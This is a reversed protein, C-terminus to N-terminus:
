CNRRLHWGIAFLGLCFLGVSAPEPVATTLTSSSGIVIPTDFGALNIGARNVLILAGGSSLAGHLRSPEESAMVRFVSLASDRNVNSNNAAIVVDGGEVASRSGLLVSQGGLNIAPARLTILDLDLTGTAFLDIGTDSRLSGVEDGVGRISLDGGDCRMALRDTGTIGLTGTCSIALQDSIQQAQVAASSLLAATLAAVFRYTM